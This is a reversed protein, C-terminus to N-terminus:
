AIVKVQRGASGDYQDGYDDKKDHKNNLIHATPPKKGRLLFCM